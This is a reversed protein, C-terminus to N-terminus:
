TVKLEFLQEARLDSAPLDERVGASHTSYPKGVGDVEQPDPLVNGM